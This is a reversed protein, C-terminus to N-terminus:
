RTKEKVYIALILIALLIIIWWYSPKSPAPATTVRASTVNITATSSSPKYYINNVLGGNYEARVTHDGTVNFVASITVAGDSGTKGSVYYNNDLYFNVLQNSLPKWASGDYYELLATVTFVDGVTVQQPATLTIRTDYQSPPPPEQEVPPPDPPPPLQEYPYNDNLPPEVAYISSTNTLLVNGFWDKVVYEVTAINYKIYQKFFNWINRLTDFMPDGYFAIIRPIWVSTNKESVGAQFVYKAYQSVGYGKVPFYITAEVVGYTGEDLYFAGQPTTGKYVASNCRVGYVAYYERMQSDYGHYMVFNDATLSISLYYPIKAM